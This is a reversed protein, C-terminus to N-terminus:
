FACIFCFEYLKYYMETLLFFRIKRNVHILYLMAAYVVHAPLLLIHQNNFYTRLSILDMESNVSILYTCTVLQTYLM